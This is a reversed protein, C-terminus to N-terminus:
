ILTQKAPIWEFYVLRHQKRSYKDIYVEKSYTLIKDKIKQYPILMVNGQCHIVIDKRESWAQEVYRDRLAVKGEWPKRVKVEIVSM